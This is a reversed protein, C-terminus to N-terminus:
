KKKKKPKYAMFALGLAALGLAVFWKPHISTDGTNPSYDKKGSLSTLKVEGNEIQVTGDEGLAYIVFNSLHTTKFQIYNKGNRNQIDSAVLELQGDQDLAAVHLTNGKVEIPLPVTITIPKKGFQTFEVVESGDTLTIDLVKM